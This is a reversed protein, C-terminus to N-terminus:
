NELNLDKLQDWIPNESKPAEEESAELYKLMAPNCPPVEERQCDYVKIMPIALCIFEYIYRAVNLQKAEPSIYIVEAEEEMDEESSFKVILQQEDSIPLHIAELCRDCDTLVSGAFAFTLEYLEPRKEFTLKVKLNGDEVPSQEFQQFFQRDVEFQFVHTGNGLGKIPITYEILGDM